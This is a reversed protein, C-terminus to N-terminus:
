RKFIESASLQLHCEDCINIEITLGVPSPQLKGSESRTLLEIMETDPDVMLYVAVGQQEYLLRKYTRYRERTAESLVEIVMAPPTELHREPVPGCLVVLDPRVVTDRRIIWDMEHIAEAHCGRRRLENCLQVLLNRVVTQHRGFPGPSMAIAIGDWLEWDGEWTAYDDITYHPAYHRATSM